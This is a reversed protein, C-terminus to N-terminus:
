PKLRSHLLDLYKLAYAMDESLRRVDTALNYVDEYTPVNVGGISVAVGEYAMSVVEPSKPPNMGIDSRLVADQTLLEINVRMSDVLQQLSFSVGEGIPATSMGKFKAAM